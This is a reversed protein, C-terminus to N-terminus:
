ARNRSGMLTVKERLNPSPLRIMGSARCVPPARTRGTGFGDPETAEALEAAPERGLREHGRELLEFGLEAGRPVVVREAGLVRRQERAVRAPRRRDGLAPPQRLPEPQAHQQLAFVERVGTRVLDVVHEALRQERPAHALVADDGLGARALM